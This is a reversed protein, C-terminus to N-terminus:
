AGDLTTESWCLVRNALVASFLTSHLTYTHLLYHWKVGDDSSRSGEMIPDSKCKASLAVRILRDLLVKNDQVPSGISVQLEHMQSAPRRPPETFTVCSLM